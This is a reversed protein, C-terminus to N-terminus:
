GRESQINGIKIQISYSPQFNDKMGEQNISLTLRLSKNKMGKECLYPFRNPCRFSDWKGDGRLALCHGRGVPGTAGRGPRAWYSFEQPM